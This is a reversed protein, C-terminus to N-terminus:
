TTAELTCADHDGRAVVEREHIERQVLRPPGAVRAVHGDASHEHAVVLDDRRGAIAGRTIAVRRRM